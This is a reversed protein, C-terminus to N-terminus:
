QPGRDNSDMPPFTWFAEMGLKRGHLMRYYMSCRSVNWVSVFLTGWDADSCSACIWTNQTTSIYNWQWWTGYYAILNYRLIKAERFESNIDRFESKKGWFESNTKCNTKKIQIGLKWRKIGTNKKESNQCIIELNLSLFNYFNLITRFKSKKKKKVM